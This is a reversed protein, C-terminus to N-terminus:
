KRAEILMYLGSNPFALKIFWRPWFLKAFTLLPGRHRQGVESELLDGHTLPTKIKVVTFARFMEKAEKISYAKTGPSEL